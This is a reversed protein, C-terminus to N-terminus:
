PVPTHATSGRIVLDCPLRTVVPEASPDAIRRRLLDVGRDVIAGVPQDVTTLDFSEWSAMDTNDFGAVWLDDPVRVGLSRAGDLVGFALVDTIAFIATPPDNQSLMRRAAAHGHQHSFGGVAVNSPRITIGAEALVARFGQERDRATSVSLPSTVLGIDLHGARLLYAALDRAGQWNDGLVQDCALEEIGRHLLVTPIGSSLALTHLRSTFTASTFVFGDVLRQQIAQGAAAEDPDHEVNWLIMQLGHASLKRGILDLMTSHFPSTVRSMFVGVADTRGTKMARAVANPTYNSEALVKLVRARTEANVRPSNTLVRSVTSQSVGALRALDRSTLTRPPSGM